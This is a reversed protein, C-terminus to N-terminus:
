KKDQLREIMGTTSCGEVYPLIRTEGVCRNGAVELPQYDGGKVLIDPKLKCILREPTDEAFPVVWDVASLGALVTMREHLTNIPRSDGKLRRVSDDDNVAVILRDGLRAAQELYSVHGAHLIDFCGNTMVVTEGAQRVRALLRLLMKEEILGGVVEEHQNLTGQLEQATVGATGLKGVVVGAALNALRMAAPLNEGSALGAALVSIVTDGAGTVDFVERAQTPLYVPEHDPRLLTMGAEGRTILLGGLEHREILALGRDVLEHKDRCAGAAAEFEALNPTILSAGHYHSFDRQKPDVLVPKGAEQAAEIFPIAPSLVGKGYDSMIVVDSEPLRAQMAALLPYSDLEHFGREFDLRILQQHHSIVRLKTVTPLDEATQFVCEVGNATLAKELVQSNDDRGTISLLIAQGGLMAINLAVNGAGGPREELDQVHVVPVPAEPSIRTTAGHWYRDLMVDGVVLVTAKAFNPM